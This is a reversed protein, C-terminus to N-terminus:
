GPELDCLNVLADHVENVEWPRLDLTQSQAEPDDSRPLPTIVPLDLCCALRRQDPADAVKSRGIGRRVLGACRAVPGDAAPRRLGLTLEVMCYSTEGPGVRGKIELICPRRCRTDGGDGRSPRDTNALWSYAVQADRGAVLGEPRCNPNDTPSARARQRPRMSTRLSCRCLTRRLPRGLALGTSLLTELLSTAEWIDSLVDRFATSMTSSCRQRRGMDNMGAPRTGPKGAARGTGSM